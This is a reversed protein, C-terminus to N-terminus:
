NNMMIFDVAEQLLEALNNPIFHGMGEVVILKCKIQYSELIPVLEVTKEYFFDKDGTIICGRISTDRINKLQQEIDATDRIAPIVSIFGKGNFPNGPLCLELALKGGQSAGALIVKKASGLAHYESFTERLERETIDPNDWCFSQYGFTQSSQPFGFFYDEKTNGNIWHPAFDQVNTGRMHLSFIGIDAETNGFTFLQPKADKKRSEFIHECEKLITQFESLGQLPELDPDGTLIIPNWWFGQDLGAQLAQVASDLREQKSFACARWFITKDLRNPFENQVHDILSHVEDLRGEGFLRFVEKQLSVFKDGTM